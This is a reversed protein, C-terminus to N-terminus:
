RRAFRAKARSVSECGRLVLVGRRRGRVDKGEGTRARGEGPGNARDEGPRESGGNAARQILIVPTELVDSKIKTTKARNKASVALNQCTFSWRFLCSSVM